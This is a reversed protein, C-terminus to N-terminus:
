QLCQEDNNRYVLIFNFTYKDVYGLLFTIGNM